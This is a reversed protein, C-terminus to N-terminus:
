FLGVLYRCPKNEEITEASYKPYSIYLREKARTVAVYLLRKEEALDADARNSPICGDHAGIVFVNNYECGKAAHITMLQVADQNKVSAERIKKLQEHVTEVHQLFAEITPYKQLEAIVNELTLTMTEGFYKELGHKMLHRIARAPPMRIVADVAGSLEEVYARHYPKATLMPLAAMLTYQQEAVTKEVEAIRSKKLYFIPLIERLTEIKPESMYKLLRIIERYPKRNYKILLRRNQRFPVQRSLLEQLVAESVASSRYLIATDKYAQGQEHLEEIKDIVFKAEATEDKTTIFQPPMPEVRAVSVLPQYESMIQNALDVIAPNCRYNYSLSHNIAGKSFEEMFGYSGRFGYIEQRTDGCCCLNKTTATLMQVIEAQIPDLDQAEDLQIFDYRNQWSQRLGTHKKLLTLAFLPMTDFTVRHHEKLWKLFKNRMRQVALPIDKTQHLAKVVEPVTVVSREGIQEKIFSEQNEASPEVTFKWGSSKIIHYSLSHLTSINVGTMSGVREQLELAAAKTFALMLVTATPYMQQIRQLRAALVTSKGTGAGSNIAHYGTVEQIAAQQEANLVSTVQPPIAVGARIPIIKQM